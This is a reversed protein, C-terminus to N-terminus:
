DPDRGHLERHLAAAQGPWDDRTIREAFSGLTEGLWRQEQPGLRAIQAYHYIGAGHLAQEMKPGVGKIRKLDDPDEPAAGLILGAPAASDGKDDGAAPAPAPETAPPPTTDPETAPPPTPAPETALPPTPAPDQAPAAAAPPDGAPPAPTATAEPATEAPDAPPKPGAEGSPQGGTIRAGTGWIFYGLGLGIGAAILLELISDASGYDM